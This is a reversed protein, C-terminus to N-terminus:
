NLSANFDKLLSDFIEATEDAIKQLRDEYALIKSEKANIQDIQHSLMKLRQNNREFKQHINELKQPDSNANKVLSIIQAKLTNFRFETNKLQGFVIPQKHELIKYIEDLEDQFKNSIEELSEILPQFDHFKVSNSFHDPRNKVFTKLPDIPKNEEPEEWFNERTM